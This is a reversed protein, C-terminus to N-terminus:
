QKRKGNNLYIMVDSLFSMKRRESRALLRHVKLSFSNFKSYFEALIWLFCCKHGSCQLSGLLSQEEVESMEGWIFCSTFPHSKKPWLRNTIQKQCQLLPFNKRAQSPKLNHLHKQTSLIKINEGELEYVHWFSCCPYKVAANKLNRYDWSLPLCICVFQLVTFTKSCQFSTTKLSM